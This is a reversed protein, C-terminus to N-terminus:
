GQGAQGQRRPQGKARRRRSGGRSYKRPPPRSFGQVSGAGHRGGRFRRNGPCGQSQKAALGARHPRPQRRSTRAHGADLHGRRRKIQVRRQRRMSKVPAYMDAAPPVKADGLFSDFEDRRREWATLLLMNPDKPNMAIELVGTNDDLFWVRQWTKGGDTTKYLGREDSPGYLRGLAAVYVINHDKPHIAIKGIQYSKKLGKNHWTKGGDTSLYVGDGFSVSNRPNAEGTGVWVLDRQTAAVAVAGISVTAEHDFQHTFTSANNATKLLGGSATGIYFCTPDAEYVALATIRGGMNAPGISRWALLKDLHTPVLEKTEVPKAPGTLASDKLSKLKAQLKLLRDNLDDIEKTIAPDIAPPNQAQSVPVTM